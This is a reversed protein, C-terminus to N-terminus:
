FDCDSYRNPPIMGLLRDKLLPQFSPRSKMRAYWAKTEPYKEWEIEDIYDLVSLHAAVCLDAMSMHKGALYNRRETLWEIYKLHRNLNFRGLRMYNSNPVGKGNLQKILKEEVLTQYVERYFLTDFWEIIRRVEMRQLANDGLLEMGLRTENLYECITQHGSIISGDTDIMVPVQGAKNLKLFEPRREWTKEFVMDYGLNKEGLCLRVKRCFPCLPYQYLKINNSVGM